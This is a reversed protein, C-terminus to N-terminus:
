RTLVAFTGRGPRRLVLFDWIGMLFGFGYGLHCCALVAPLLWCERWVGRRHCIHVAASVTGLGYVLLL